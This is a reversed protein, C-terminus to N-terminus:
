TASPSSSASTSPSVSPSRSASTSPSASASTSPSASPSTSASASAPSKTSVATVCWQGGIAVLEIADGIAGGFTFPNGYTIANFDGSITLTYADATTAVILLRMGEDDAGPAALTMASTTDSALRHLGPAVTIAGAAGYTYIHPSEPPPFDEAPGVVALSLIGHDVAKTGVQGRLVRIWTSSVERILMFESNVKLFSAVAFGTGSTVRFETDKAKIAAALTTSTLSM